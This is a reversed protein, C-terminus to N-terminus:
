NNNKVEKLMRVLYNYDDLTLENQKIEIAEYIKRLKDQNSLDDKLNNIDTIIDNLNTSKTNFVIDMDDETESTDAYSIEEYTNDINDYNKSKKVPEITLYDNYVNYSIEPVKSIEENTNTESINVYSDVEQLEKVEENSKVKVSRKLIIINNLKNSIKSVLLILIWVLFLKMSIEILILLNNNTYISLQEYVDIKKDIINYIILSFILNFLVFCLANLSKIFKTTSNSLTSKLLLINVIVLVLIYVALNPFFLFIFINNMLYDLLKFIEDHYFYLLIGFILVYVIVFVIKVIRKNKLSNAIGLILLTIISIISLTLVYPNKIFINYLTQLQEFINVQVM